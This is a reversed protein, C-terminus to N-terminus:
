QEVGGPTLAERPTAWIFFDETSNWWLAVEGMDSTRLSHTCRASLKLSRTVFSSSAALGALAQQGPVLFFERLFDGYVEGLIGRGEELGGM